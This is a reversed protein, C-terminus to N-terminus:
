EKALEEENKDFSKITEKSSKEYRYFEYANLLLNVEEFQM